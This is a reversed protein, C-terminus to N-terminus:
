AVAPTTGVPVESAPAAPAPAHPELEEGFRVLRASNFIVVASALTHLLAAPIATLTGSVALPMVVLIFVVGFVLN